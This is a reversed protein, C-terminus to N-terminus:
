RLRWQGAARIEAPLIRSRARRTEKTSGGNADAGHAAIMQDQLEAARGVAGWQLFQVVEPPVGNVDRHLTAREPLWDDCLSMAAGLALVHTCFFGTKPRRGGQVGGRGAVVNLGLKTDFSELGANQVDDGKLHVKGRDKDL